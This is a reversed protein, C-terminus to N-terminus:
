RDGLSTEHESVYLLLVAASMRRRLGPCLRVCVMGPINTQQVIEVSPIYVGGESIRVACSYPLM